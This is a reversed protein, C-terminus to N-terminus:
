CLQTQQLFVIAKMGCAAVTASIFPIYGVIAAVFLLQKVKDLRDATCFLALPHSGGASHEICRRFHAGQQQERKMSINNATITLSRSSTSDMRRGAGRAAEPLHPEHQRSRNGTSCREIVLLDPIELRSQGGVPVAHRQLQQITRRLM